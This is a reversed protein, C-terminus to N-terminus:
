KVEKKLYLKRHHMWSGMHPRMCPGCVATQPCVQPKNDRVINSYSNTINCLLCDIYQWTVLPLLLHPSSNWCPLRSCAASYFRPRYTTLPAAQERNGKLDGMYVVPPQNLVSCFRWYNVRAIQFQWSIRCSIKACIALTFLGYFVVLMEYCTINKHFIQCIICRDILQLM